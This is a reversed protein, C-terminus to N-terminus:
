LNRLRICDVSADVLALDTYYNPAGTEEFDFSGVLLCADQNAVARRGM